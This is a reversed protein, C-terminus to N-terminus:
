QRGLGAAGIIGADNGLTAIALKTKNTSNRTYQERDVLKALPILLNDREGSVGGGISLVEPQFIDIISAIGSALYHTYEDVVEEAAKDGMRLADFATRGTVKGREDALTQM